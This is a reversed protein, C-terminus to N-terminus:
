TFANMNSDKLDAYLEGDTSFTEGERTVSNFLDSSDAYKQHMLKILMEQIPKIGDANRKQMNMYSAYLDKSKEEKVETQEKSKKGPYEARGRREMYGKLHILFYFGDLAIEDNFFEALAKKTKDDRTPGIGGPRLVLDAWQFAKDRYEETLPLLIPTRYRNYERFPNVDGFLHNPSSKGYILNKFFYEEQLHRFFM